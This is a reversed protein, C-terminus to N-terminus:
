PQNTSAMHHFRVRFGLLDLGSFLFSIGGLLGLRWPLQSPKMTQILGGIALTAM